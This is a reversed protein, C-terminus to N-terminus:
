KRLGKLLRDADALKANIQEFVKDIPTHCDWHRFLVLVDVAEIEEDFKDAVSYTADGPKYAKGCVDCRARSYDFPRAM